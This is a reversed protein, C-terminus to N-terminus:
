MAIESTFHTSITEIIEGVIYEFRRDINEPQRIFDEFEEITYRRILEIVM